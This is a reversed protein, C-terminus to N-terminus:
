DEDDGLLLMLVGPLIKVEAAQAYTGTIKATENKKITVTQNRPKVKWETEASIDLFEVSYQGADLDPEVENHYHWPQTGLRRWAGQDQAGEPEILVRLSGKHRIYTGTTESLEGPNVDVERSGPKDWSSISTFSVLTKGVDIGCVLEESAYNQGAGQYTWQAGAERAGEPEIYTRICGWTIEDYTGTEKLELGHTITVEINEPKNWGVLGKFEVEYLGPEIDDYSYGSIQWHDFGKIKWRGQSRAEEPNIMVSLSSKEVSYRGSAATPENKEIIVSKQSPKAWGEVEKFEITRSGTHEVNITDGHNLWSGTSSCGDGVLCWGGLAEMEAPQISVTLSGSDGEAGYYFMRHHFVGPHIVIELDDPLVWGDVEEFSIVHTGANLTITQDSDKWNEVDVTWRGKSAPAGEPGLTVKLTGPQPIYEATTELIDDHELLVQQRPPTFWGPVSMFEIEQPGVPVSDRIEGHGRWSDDGVVRWMGTGRVAEPDLFVRVSGAQQLYQGELITTEGIAVNGSINSPKTWESVNRFEVEYSKPDLGSETYGSSRWNSTGTRRWQMNSLPPQGDDRNINVRLSGTQPAGPGYGPEVDTMWNISNYWATYIDENARMFFEVRYDGSGAVDFYLWGGQEPTLPDFRDNEIVKLQGEISTVFLRKVSLTQVLTVPGPQSTVTCASPPNQFQICPVPERYTFMTVNILRTGPPVFFRFKNSPGGREPGNYSETWSSRWTGLDGHVAQYTNHSAWAAGALFMIILAALLSSFYLKILM